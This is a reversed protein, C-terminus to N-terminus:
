RRQGTGLGCAASGRDRPRRPWGPCRAPSGGGVVVTVRCPVPSGRPMWGPWGRCRRWPAPEGWIALPDGDRRAAQRVAATVRAGFLEQSRPEAPERIAAPSGTEGAAVFVRALQRDACDFILEVGDAPSLSAGGAPAEPLGELAVQRVEKDWTVTVICEDKM